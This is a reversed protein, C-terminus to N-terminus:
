MEKDRLTRGSYGEAKKLPRKDHDTAFQFILEFSLPQRSENRKIRFEWCTVLYAFLYATYEIPKWVKQVPM